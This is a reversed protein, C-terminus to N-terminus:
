WLGPPSQGANEWRNFRNIRSEIRRLLRRLSSDASANADRRRRSSTRNRSSRACGQSFLCPWRM